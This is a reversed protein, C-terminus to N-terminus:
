KLKKVFDYDGGSVTANCFLVKSAAKYFAIGYFFLGHYNNTENQQM